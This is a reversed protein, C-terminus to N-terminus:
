AEPPPESAPPELPLLIRFTSGRGLESTVKVAGGHTRAIGAVAAMGLGRGFVKTTFFPEFVRELTEPSMGEGEDQVELVAFRGPRADSALFTEELAPALVSEVRARVTIAGGRDGIAEAANLLLNMLVQRLQAADGSVAPLDPEMRIRLEVDEPIASGLLRRVDDVLSPLDLPGPQRVSRGAYDLLQRCLEAARLSAHEIDALPPSSDAGSDSLELRLLEANGRITTLLNNFDHAIGGALVGLSELRQAHEMQTQIERREEEARHRAAEAEDREAVAAALMAAAAGVVTLYAWLVLLSSQESGGIFAGGGSATGLVAIAGLLAAALVAGRPGLRLGAWILFPFPLFSLFLSIWSALGHPLFAALGSVTVLAAVVWTERRSGLARWGPRGRAAVLLVPAVLAAGGVDGLWWILWVELADKGALAGTVSLSLVGVTASLITCAGVGLAGFVLVDRLRAFGPHFRGVRALLLAGVVAELTNGISIGLAAAITTGVTLNVALAGIFVGPWLRRGYLVLAALGLGTPPWILTANTQYHALSLGVRGLVWYASALGIVALM